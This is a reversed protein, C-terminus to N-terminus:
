EELVFDEAIIEADDETHAVRYDGIVNNEYFRILYSRSLMKYILVKKSGTEFTHLLEM